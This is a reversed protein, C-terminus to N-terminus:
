ATIQLLAPGTAAFLAGIAIAVGYPLQQSWNRDRRLRAILWFVIVLVGGALATAIAFLTAKALPLWLALAAYFKADGGGWLGFRFLAMSVLLAIAFHAFHSWAPGSAPDLFVAAAGALLVLLNLWNPIIRRIVDFGAAVLCLLGMAAVSISLAM